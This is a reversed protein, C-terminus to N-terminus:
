EIERRLLPEMEIRQGQAPRDPFQTAPHRRKAFLHDGLRAGRVNGAEHGGVHGLDVRGPGVPRHVLRLAEGAVVEQQDVGPHPCGPEVHLRLSGAADLEVVVALADENTDGPLVQALQVGTRDLGQDLRGLASELRAVAVYGGPLVSPVQHQLARVLDNLVEGLRASAPDLPRDLLGAGDAAALVVDVDAGARQDMRHGHQVRGFPRDVDVFADLHMGERPDFPGAEDAGLGDHEPGLAALAVRDPRDAPHAALTSSDIM